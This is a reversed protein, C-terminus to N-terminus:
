FLEPNSSWYAQALGPNSSIRFASFSATSQPPLLDPHHSLSPDTKKVKPGLCEKGLSAKTDLSSPFSFYSLGVVAASASCGIHFPPPLVSPDRRM